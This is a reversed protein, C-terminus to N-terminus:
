FFFVDGVLDYIPYGWDSDHILHTRFVLWQSTSRSRDLDPPNVGWIKKSSRSPLHHYIFTMISMFWSLFVQSLIQFIPPVKWILAIKRSLEGMNARGSAEPDWSFTPGRLFSPTEFSFGPNRFFTIKGFNPFDHFHHLQRPFRTTEGTHTYFSEADNNNSADLLADVGDNLTTCSWHRTSGVVSAM